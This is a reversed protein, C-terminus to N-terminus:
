NKKADETTATEMDAIKQGLDFDRLVEKADTVAILDEGPGM